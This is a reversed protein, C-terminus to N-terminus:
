LRGWQQLGAEGLNTLAKVRVEKKVQVQSEVVKADQVLIPFASSRSVEATMFCARLLRNGKELHLIVEVFEM